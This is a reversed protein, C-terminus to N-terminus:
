WQSSTGTKVFKWTPSNSIPGAESTSSVNTNVGGVTWPDVVCLNTGPGGFYSKKINNVDHYFILGNTVVSNSSCSM